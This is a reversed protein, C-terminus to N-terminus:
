WGFAERDSMWTGQAKMVMEIVERGCGDGGNRTSVYCALAKIEEVADAPCTPVGALKMLDYDPIDDGMFLVEEAKLGCKDVFDQFDDCKYHSGLYIHEVGLSEFRVRVAETKGGSIIAIPYGKLVAQRLAYGDKINIMRMPEGNPYLPIMNGSLVGDVDFAFAKVYKLKEQFDM